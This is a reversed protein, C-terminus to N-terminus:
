LPAQRTAAGCWACKNSKRMLIRRGCSPCDGVPKRIKGDIQGDKADVAQVAAVLEDDTCGLKFKLLEWMGACALELSQVEQQLQIVEASLGVPAASTPAPTRAYNSLMWPLM